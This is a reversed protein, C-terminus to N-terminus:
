PCHGNWPRQEGAIRACQLAELACKQFDFLRDDPLL